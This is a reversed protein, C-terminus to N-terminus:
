PVPKRIVMNIEVPTFLRFSLMKGFTPLYRKVLRVARAFTRNGIPFRYVMRAWDLTRGVTTFELVEASFIRSFLLMLSFEDFNRIHAFRYPFDPKAYASLDERYPVRVILHSGPKLCRLIKSVCLNLDLVHELVDTCVVIDFTNDKYPTDEIRAFCVEIGQNKAKALYDLSIDMGYREMDNFRSLLRGLGVGVDLILNGASSYKKVLTATSVESEIWSEEEMFPNKGSYKTFELHDHAIREYNESYEDPSSFIPISNRYEIPTRAYVGIGASHADSGALDTNGAQNLASSM